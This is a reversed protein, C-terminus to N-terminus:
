TKANKKSDMYELLLQKLITVFPVALFMGVLGFLQGGVIVSFIVLLPSIKLTHGMIKPEIFNGDIQQFILLLILTPLALGIGGTILTLISIVIVAVLSGLYPIFNALGALLGLLVAYEVGLILLISTVVVLNIISDLGKSAIFTFLVNNIQRLYKSMQKQTREKFLLKSLRRTFNIIREKEILIYLSFVLSILINMIGNAFGILGTTIQEVWSSNLLQNLAGDAFDTLIDKIWTSGAPLNNIYRILFNYHHPVSNVLDVVSAIIIPIIFMIFLIILLLLILYVIIVSIARAYKVLFKVKSQKYVEELKRCPIYLFYCILIGMLFPSMIRFFTGIVQWIQSMNNLMNFIIILLTGVVLLPLWKIVMNSDKKM